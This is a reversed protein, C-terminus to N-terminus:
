IRRELENISRKSLALGIAAIVEIADAGSLNPFIDLLREANLNVIDYDKDKLHVHTQMVAVHWLPLVKENTIM